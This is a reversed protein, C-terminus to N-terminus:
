DCGGCQLSIQEGRLHDDGPLQTTERSSQNPSKEETGALQSHMPSTRNELNFEVFWDRDYRSLNRYLNSDACHASTIRKEPRANKVLLCWRDRMRQIAERSLDKDKSFGAYRAWRLFRANVAHLERSATRASVGDAPGMSILDQYRVGYAEVTLQAKESSSVDSARYSVGCSCALKWGAGERSPAKWTDNKRHLIGVCSLEGISKDVSNGHSDLSQARPAIVTNQTAPVFSGPLASRRNLLSEAAIFMFPHSADRGRCTLKLARFM